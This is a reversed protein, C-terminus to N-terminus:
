QYTIAFYGETLQTNLLPNLLAQAHFNFTGRIRKTSTNHSLITLTGSTSAQSNNPDLNPNYLGVYTAGFLDLTYTGPTINAPMLLGVSKTVTADTGTIGLQSTLPPVPPTMAGLVVPPVWLSGAIKVKFTDTSPTPPLSTEYSINNFVGETINLQAGDTQRFVKFSFTGSMKKNVTDISTINVEGGSENPYEGQNTTMAFLSTASDLYAAGNMSVDSLIYRHVSSDTLTITLIKGDTSQGSLNIVGAMRSGAALKNAVWQTGGINARFEGTVQSTSNFNIEKQCSSFTLLISLAVFPLLGLLKKM